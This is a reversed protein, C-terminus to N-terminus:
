ITKISKKLMFINCSSGFHRSLLARQEINLRSDMISHGTYFLRNPKILVVDWRTSEFLFKWHVKSFYRIESFANSAHEGLRNPISWCKIFHVLNTWIRWSASPVVHIAVGNDKLVRQIERQFEFIQPIHALVNSSYAIDFTKDPFPITHGDYETISVIRDARLNSTPLDIAVVEYGRAKLMEAQWGAGAGIELVRGSAPMVKLVEELEYLRKIKLYELTRVSMWSTTAKHISKLIIKIYKM